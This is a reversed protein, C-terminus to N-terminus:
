STRNYKSNIWKQAGYTLYNLRLLSLNVRAKWGAPIKGNLIQQPILTAYAGALSPSPAAPFPGEHLHTSFLQNVQMQATIFSNLIKNTEDIAETITVLAEQLNKGKPIPQMFNKEDFNGAMLSIGYKSVAGGDGGWAAIDEPMSSVIKVGQRSVIRVSDAKIGIASRGESAGPVLGGDVLNMYTDIDAKQSIYIRAADTEFSPDVFRDSRKGVKTAAARGVVIDISACADGGSGGYGSEAGANRDRGLVIYSNDNNFVKEGKAKQYIPFSEIIRSGDIGQAPNNEVNTQDAPALEEITRLKKKDEFLGM